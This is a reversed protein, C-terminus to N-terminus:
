PQGEASPRRGAGRALVLECVAVGDLPEGAAPQQSAVTGSGSLRPVIGLHMLRRTAERASLGSLDPM